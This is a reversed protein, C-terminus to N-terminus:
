KSGIRYISTEVTQHVIELPCRHHGHASTALTAKSRTMKRTWIWNANITAIGAQVRMRARHLDTGLGLKIGPELNDRPSCETCTSTSKTPRRSEVDTCDLKNGIYRNTADIPNQQRLGSQIGEINSCLDQTVLWAGIQARPSCESTPSKVDASDFKTALTIIPPEDSRHNWKQKKQKM